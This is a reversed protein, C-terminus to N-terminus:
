EGDVSTVLAWAQKGALGRGIAEAYQARMQELAQAVEDAPIAIASADAPTGGLYAWEAALQVLAQQVTAGDRGAIYAHVSARKRVILYDSFIREQLQPDFAQAPDLKLARVALDVSSPILQYKGIAFLRDPDNRPLHQLNQVQRLTLRSFDIRQGLSDGSRGRNFAGYGGSGREILASLPNSVPTRVVAHRPNAALLM